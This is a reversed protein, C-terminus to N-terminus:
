RAGRHRKFGSTRRLAPIGYLVFAVVLLVLLTGIVGGVREAQSMPQDYIPSEETTLAFYLNPITAFVIFGVLLGAKFLHWLLSVISM